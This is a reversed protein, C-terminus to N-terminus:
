PQLNSDKAAWSSGRATTEALREAPDVGTVRGGREAAILAANGSGCGLDLVGAGEIPGCADVATQAAPHLQEATREYRGLGWDM